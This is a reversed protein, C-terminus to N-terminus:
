VKLLSEYVRLSSSRVKLHSEFAGLDVMLDGPPKRVYAAVAVGVPLAISPSARLPLSNTISVPLLSTVLTCIISGSLRKAARMLDWALHPDGRRDVPVLLTSERHLGGGSTAPM